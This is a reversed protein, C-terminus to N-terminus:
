RVKVVDLEQTYYLKKITCDGDTGNDPSPPETNGPTNTGDFTHLPPIQVGTIDISAIAIGEHAAISSLRQVSKDCKTVPVLVSSNGTVM